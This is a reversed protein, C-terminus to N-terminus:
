KIGPSGSEGNSGRRRRLAFYAFVGGAFLFLNGALVNHEGFDLFRGYIADHFGGRAIGALGVLWLSVAVSGLALRNLGSDLGTASQAVHLRTKRGTREDLSRLVGEAVRKQFRSTEPDARIEEYRERSSEPDLKALFYIHYSSGPSSGLVDLVRRLAESGALIGSSSSSGVAVCVSDPTSEICAEPHEAELSRRLSDQAGANMQTRLPM